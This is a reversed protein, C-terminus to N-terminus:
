LLTYVVVKKVLLADISTVLFVRVVSPFSLITLASSRSLNSLDIHFYFTSLRQHGPSLIFFRSLLAFLSEVTGYVGHMTLAFVCFLNRSTDLSM